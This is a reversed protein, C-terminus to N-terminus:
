CVLLFNLPFPSADLGEPELLHCKQLLTSTGHQISHPLKCHGYAKFIWKSFVCTHSDWRGGWNLGDWLSTWMKIRAVIKSKELLLFHMDLSFYSKRPHPICDGATLLFSARCSTLCSSPKFLFLKNSRFNWSKLVPSSTDIHNLHKRFLFISLCFWVM